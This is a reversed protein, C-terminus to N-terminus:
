EAGELVARTASGCASWTYQQVRVLGRAVCDAVLADDADIRELAATISTVSSPDFYVAADGAVEPLATTQSCVVTTGSAMAELVPMGFGEYLSPFVFARASALLGYLVDDPVFGLLHINDRVPSADILQQLPEGLWGVKGAIVLHTDHVHHMHVFATILRQLNKRPQLTGVCLFYRNYRQPTANAPRFLPSVGHPIVRVRKANMGTYRVLDDATAQSIAIITDAVWAAWRTSLRLYLNQFRTHAEPFALFGLDHITTVVRMGRLLPVNWPVVHSPVFLVDPRHLLLEWALRTHTWLRRAPLVRVTMQPPLAPLEAPMERVYLSYQHPGPDAALAALLEWTYRETGTRQRTALRSIDIGIHVIVGKQQSELIVSGIPMLAYVSYVHPENKRADGHIIGM